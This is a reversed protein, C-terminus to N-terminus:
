MHVGVEMVRPSSYLSVAVCQLVSCCVVVCQLAGCCHAEVEMGLLCSYLKVTRQPVSPNPSRQMQRRCCVAVRQVVSSCVAAGPADPPHLLHLLHLLIPTHAPLASPTHACLSKKGRANALHTHPHHSPSTLTIHTVFASQIKSLLFHSHSLLNHIFARSTKHKRWNHTLAIHMVRILHINTTCGARRRVAIGGRTNGRKWKSLPTCPMYSASVAQAIHTYIHIYTYVYIFIHM